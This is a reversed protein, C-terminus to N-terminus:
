EEYFILLRNLVTYVNNYVASVPSKYMLMVMENLRHCSFLHSDEITVQIVMALYDISLAKSQKQMERYLSLKTDTRHVTKAHKMVIYRFM